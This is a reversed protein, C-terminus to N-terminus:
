GRLEEGGLGGGALLGLMVTTAAEVEAEGATMTGGGDYWAWGLM